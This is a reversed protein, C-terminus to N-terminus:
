DERSETEGSPLFPPYFKCIKNRCLSIMLVAKGVNLFTDNKGADHHFQLCWPLVLPQMIM